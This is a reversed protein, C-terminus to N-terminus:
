IKLLLIDISQTLSKGLVGSKQAHDIELLENYIKILKENSFLKAQRLLKGKQWPALRKLDDISDEVQNLVALLLRFQRVLMYFLKDEEMNKLADHFLKVNNTNEPKLQDLFLFLGQPLMFSKQISKKLLNFTSKEIKKGEWFVLNLKTSNNNIYELIEKYESSSQKKNSFFNEIFIDNINLFLNGGEIVQKLKEISIDKDFSAIDKSKKKESIFYERSKSLDDGHIITIM